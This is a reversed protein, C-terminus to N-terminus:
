NARGSAEDAEPEESAERTEFYADFHQDMYRNKADNPDLELAKDLAQRAEQRRRQRILVMALNGWSGPLDPGVSVARRAAVEAEALDGQASLCWTLELWAEKHFPASRLFERFCREGEEWRCLVRNLFGQVYAGIGGEGDLRKRIALTEDLLEELEVFLEAAREEDAAARVEHAQSDLDIVRRYIARLRIEDPAPSRESKVGRVAHMGTNNKNADAQIRCKEITEDLFERVSDSQEWENWAALDAEDLEGPPPFESLVDGRWYYENGELGILVQVFRKAEERDMPVPAHAFDMILTSGPEFPPKNIAVDPTRYWFHGEPCHFFNTNPELVLERSIYFIKGSPLTPM